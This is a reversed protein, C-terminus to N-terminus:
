CRGRQRRYTYWARAAQDARLIWSPSDDDVVGAWVRATAAAHEDVFERAATAYEPVTAAVQDAMAPTHGSAILWLCWTAADLWSAGISAWSWDVLRVGMPTILINDPNLDTHLFACGAFMEPRSSYAAFRAPMTPLDLGAPASVRARRALLGAVLAVDASGPSLDAPRGDLTEYVNILWGDPTGTHLLLRPGDPHVHAAATSERRHTIWRRDTARLAKVFCRRGGTGEIVAAVDNNLGAGAHCVSSVPGVLDAVVDAVSAPLTSSATMGVLIDHTGAPM